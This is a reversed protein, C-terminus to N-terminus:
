RVPNLKLGFANFIDVAETWDVRRQDRTGDQGGSSVIGRAQRARPNTTAAWVTGGSDGNVSGWGHVVDVGEVGRSLHGAIPFRLDANTVKIGCPTSHGFSASRAGSHCVFDGLFSYRVSTLPIWTNVDSEDANNNAGILTEADWTLNRSTVTGVFNGLRRNGYSFTPGAATYVRQGVGFCHSATIMVPRGDSKRVAPLGATCYGSGNTIVDGGIFPTSDHWKVNNWAASKSDRASGTSFSRHMGVRAGEALTSGAKVAIATNNVEIALGSGDPAASVAYVAYSHREAVYAVVAKNMAALTYTARHVRVLSTDISPNASKAAHIFGSARQTHTLYLNLVDHNADIGLGAFVDAGRGNGIESLTGALTRLPDLLAAQQVPAMTAIEVDTMVTRPAKAAGAVPFSFSATSTTGSSAAILAVATANLGLAVMFAKVSVRWAWVHIDGEASFGV